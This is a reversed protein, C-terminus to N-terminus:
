NELKKIIEDTNNVIQQILDLIEGIAYIFLSSLICGCLWIIGPIIGANEFCILIVCFFIIGLFVGAVAIKKLNNAILNNANKKNLCENNM